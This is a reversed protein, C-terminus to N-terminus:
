LLFSLQTAPQGHSFGSVAETAVPSVLMLTGELISEKMCDSHWIKTKILVHVVRHGRSYKSDGRAPLVHTAANSPPLFSNLISGRTM